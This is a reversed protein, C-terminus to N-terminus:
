LHGIGPRLTRGAQPEAVGLSRLADAVSRPVEEERLRCDFEEELALVLEAAGLSDLALDEEPEAPRRGTVRAVVEAVRDEM